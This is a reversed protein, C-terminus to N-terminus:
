RLSNPSATVGHQSKQEVGTLVDYLQQVTDIIDTTEKIFVSEVYAFGGSDDADFWESYEPTVAYFCAGGDIDSRVVGMVELLTLTLACEAVPMQASAAINEVPVPDTGVVALMWRLRLGTTTEDTFTEVADDFFAPTNKERSSEPGPLTPRPTEENVGSPSRIFEVADLIGLLKALVPPVPDLRLTLRQCEKNVGNRPSASERSGLPSTSLEGITPDERASVTDGDITRIQADETPTATECTVTELDAFPCEHFVSPAASDTGSVANDSKTDSQGDPLSCLGCSDVITLVYRDSPDSRVMEVGHAANMGAFFSDFLGVLAPHEAPSLSYRRTAGDRFFASQEVAGTEVDVRFICGDTEFSRVSEEICCSLSRQDVDAVANFVTDVQTMHAFEPPASRGTVIGYDM